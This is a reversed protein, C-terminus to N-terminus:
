FGIAKNLRTFDFTAAFFYHEDINGTYTVPNAFLPRGCVDM